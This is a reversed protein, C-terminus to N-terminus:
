MGNFGDAITRLELPERWAMPLNTLEWNDSDLVRTQKIPKMNDMIPATNIKRM